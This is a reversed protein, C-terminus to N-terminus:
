APQQNHPRYSEYVQPPGQDNNGGHNPRNMEHSEARQGYGPEVEGLLHGYQQQRGPIFSKGSVSAAARRRRRRVLLYRVVFFVFLVGVVFVVCVIVLGIISDTKLKKDSPLHQATDKTKGPASARCLYPNDSSSQVLHINDFDTCDFGDHTSNISFGQAFFKLDPLSVSDFSDASLPNQNPCSYRSSFLAAWISAERSLTLSTLLWYTSLM